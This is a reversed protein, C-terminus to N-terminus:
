LTALNSDIQSSKDCEFQYKVEWSAKCSYICHFVGSLFTYGDSMGYFSQFKAPLLIFDQPEQTYVHM